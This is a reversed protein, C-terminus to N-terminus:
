QGTRGSMFGAVFEPNRRHRELTATKGERACRWGYSQLPMYQARIAFGRYAGRLSKVPVCGAALMETHTSFSM